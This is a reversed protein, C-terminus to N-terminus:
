QNSDHGVLNIPQIYTVATHRRLLQQWKAQHKQNTVIVAHKSQHILDLDSYNDTITAYYPPFVQQSTLFPLKRSLLDVQIKGTCRGNVVGLSTSYWESVGLSKAVKKAIVDLTASVIVIKKGDKRYDDVLSHVNEFSQLVLWDTYFADVADKLQEITIGKLFRVAMMRTLDLGITHFLIKNFARWIIFRTLRRFLRYGRSKLHFDLFDFTTNSDYLTGCIDLLVIAPQNNVM